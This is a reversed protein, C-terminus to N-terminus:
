QLLADIIEQRSVNETKLGEDIRSMFDLDDIHEIDVEKAAFSMRKAFEMLFDIDAKQTPSILVAKM